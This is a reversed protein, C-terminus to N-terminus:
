HKSIIVLHLKLMRQLSIFHHNTSDFVLDVVGAVAVLAVFYKYENVFAFASLSSLVAVFMTLKHLRTYYAERDDHYLASKLCDIRFATWSDLTSEATAETGTPHGQADPPKAAAAASAAATGAAETSESSAM